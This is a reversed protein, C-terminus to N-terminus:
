LRQGPMPDVFLSSGPVQPCFLGRSESLPSATSKMCRYVEHESAVCPAHLYTHASTCYSTIFFSKPLATDLRTCYVSSFAFADALQSTSPQSM